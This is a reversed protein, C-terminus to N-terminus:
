YKSIFEKIVSQKDETINISCNFIGNYKNCFILYSDFMEKVFERFSSFYSSNNQKGDNITFVCSDNNNRKILIELPQDPFFFSAENNKICKCLAKIFYEWLQDVYDWEKFGIIEYSCYKIVIAGEMYDIDVNRGTIDSLDIEKINVFKDELKLFTEIEFM